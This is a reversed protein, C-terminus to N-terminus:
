VSRRNGFRVPEMALLFQTRPQSCLGEGCTLGGTPTSAWPSEPGFRQPQQKGQQTKMLSTQTLQLVNVASLRPAAPSRPRPCCCTHSLQGPRPWPAKGLMHQGWHLPGPDGFEPPWQSSTSVCTGTSVQVGLMDREWRADHARPNAAGKLLFGQPDLPGCVSAGWRGGPYHSREIKSERKLQVVTIKRHLQRHCVYLSM